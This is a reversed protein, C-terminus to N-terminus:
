LSNIYEYIANFQKMADNEFEPMATKGEDDAYKPMKTNPLIHMPNLMWRHYFDKNLRDATYKLNVGKVEFAAMAKQDAIDHCIICGFGTVGALKKGVEIEDAKKSLANDCNFSAHQLALSKAMLEARAPFSPMRALLWERSNYPLSGELYGKLTQEKIKEGVFTLQPRSQDLHGRDKHHTKLYKVEGSFGEWKSTKDDRSHCAICNLEELQREAFENDSHAFVIQPNSNLAANIAKIEATSVRYGSSPNKLLYCGKQKGVIDEFPLADIGTPAEGGHCSVCGKDSFLQKGLEVTKKPSAKKVVPKNASDRILYAALDLAEKESLNFNPMKTWKYNKEPALLFEKLAAPKFKRAVNALSLRDGKERKQKPSTHCSICGLDYFLGGGQKHDGELPTSLDKQVDTALYAAIAEAEKKNVLMPMDSHKNLSKPNAIWSAMWSQHFRGGANELSPSDMYFEPMLNQDDSKHCAICRKKALFMRAERLKVHEKVLSSSEHRLKNPGIPSLPFENGSWLLNFYAANQTDGMYTIKFKHAGPNLSIAASKLIKNDSADDFVVKDNLEFQLKGTLKTQFTVTDKEAALIFGDYTATYQGAEILPSVLSGKELQLNLFRSVKSDLSGKGSKLTLQAGNPYTYMQKKMELEASGVLDDVQIDDDSLNHVTNIIKSNVAKGSQTTLRFIVKMNDVPKMDKIKIFVTKQDPMLQSATVYVIEGDRNKAVGVRGVRKSVTKKFSNLVKEKTDTAFHASGYQSCYLYNWRELSFNSLDAVSAADIKENFTVYLGKVSARVDIPRILKEGKYRIRNIAMARPANTQWGKFGLVIAEDKKKPNFRMRMAASQLRIPLEFVGGQVQGDIEEKFVSFVRSKGYSLHLLSGGFDGWSGKPVWMQSGGSNDVNMPLFCLPKDYGESEKKNNGPHIVGGFSGKKFYNIKCAPVYTGENEGTTVITGEPNVSLGGPARLGSAFVESERGDKSIKFVVGHNDHTEEFGRGGNRVPAAKAMYFDGKSDTQLDFTFEHFNKTIKIDNNFNEYYDAEGSHNLDHLRTIQDKGTVYIFGDVIHLGLAENLGAAYRKWVVKELNGNIGSAIWVDGNWTCFAASEGDPFYDFGSVKIPSNWPNKQPIPLQDVAFTENESENYEGKMEITEAWRLSSGNTYKLLDEEDLVLESKSKSYRISFNVQQSGKPIRLFYIGDDNSELTFQSNKIFLDKGIKVKNNEFVKLQLEEKVDPITFHRLFVDKSAMQPMEYVPVASDGVTYHFVVNKDDRFTGKFKVYNRELPAFDRKRPDAWSGNYAWALSTGSSLFVNGAVISNGGHKGDWPTGHFKLKGTNVYRLNMNGTDYYATFLDKGTELIVANGRLIAADKKYNVVQSTVQSFDVNDFWYEKAHVCNTSIILGLIAIYFGARM